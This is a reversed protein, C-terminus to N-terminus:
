SRIAIEGGSWIRRLLLGAVLGALSMVVMLLYTQGRWADYVQGALLMAGGMGIGATITAYLAQATGAQREPVAKAIFHIAGLHAAGYTAGHLISLPLLVALPPDFAMVLWRLIAAVAGINLLTIAGLRRMVAGSYMFLVIETCVGIAWLLGITASSIGQSQWHLTGFTYLVAHSSQVAGAAVLFALMARTRMLAAVDALRLRARGGGGTPGDEIHPRPLLHAALVTLAAGVVIAWIGAAPGWRDVAAGGMFSAAIFTLSGWLRMRGYDLGARKVGAMAVTETLPMVTSLCLGSLMALAFLTWFGSSQAMALLAVLGGWTLAVLITRHRGSRDALFAIAPTAILRAMLPAATIIGIEASTLGRWQLWVPLYPLQTGYVLFIAGFFMGVRAAYQMRDVPPV